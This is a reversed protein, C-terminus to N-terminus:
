CRGSFRATAAWPIYKPGRCVTVCCWQWATTRLLRTAQSSTIPRTKRCKAGVPGSPSRRARWRGQRRSGTDYLSVAATGCGNPRSERLGRVEGAYLRFMDLRFEVGPQHCSVYAFWGERYRKTVKLTVHLETWAEKTVTQPQSAAARDYPRGNREIELRITAPGKMSKALVAFTYTKGVAPAEMTQGFQIGWEEVTGVSLVASRRGAAADKDDVRFTATTKGPRDLQWLDRGDEFSANAFLNEPTRGKAATRGDAAWCFFVCSLLLIAAAQFSVRSLM